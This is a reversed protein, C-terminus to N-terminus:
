IAVGVSPSVGYERIYNYAYESDKKYEIRAWTQLDRDTSSRNPKAIFKIASLVYKTM